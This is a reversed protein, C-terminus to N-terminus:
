LYKEVLVGFHERAAPAISDRDSWIALELASHAASPTDAIRKFDAVAAKILEIANATAENLNEIIEKLLEHKDLDEGVPRWCDYDSPLCVMAYAMEAERALKAEPMVTMGILDGGWMRHMESEARTSFAPGEMCVYTGSDHLDTTVGARCSILHKRLVQCFPSSFEVHVALYDDFFTGARRHTKDIVQDPIVLDKPKLNERLSGVAGSAIIHTCGLSKLAYINARYNVNSPGILHGSGHRNLVAVPTDGWATEIISDSPEGFPTIVDVSTGQVDSCLADGLGSGGIIGVKVDAM